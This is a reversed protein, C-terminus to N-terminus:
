PIRHFNSMPPPHSFAPTLRMMPFINFKFSSSDARCLGSGIQNQHKSAEHPAGDGSRGGRSVSAHSMAIKSLVGNGANVKKWKTRRNQFWIKIQSETLRLTKALYVRERITLYRSSAFKQELTLQQEYSYATRVRRSKKDERNRPDISDTESTAGSRGPSVNIPHQVNNSGSNALMWAITFPSADSVQNPLAFQSSM